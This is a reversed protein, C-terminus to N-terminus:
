RRILFIESSQQDIAAGNPNSIGSYAVHEGSADVVISSVPRNAALRDLQLTDTDLLFAEPIPLTSDPVLILTLVSGDTSLSLPAETRLEYGSLQCDDTSDMPCARIASDMDIREGSILNLLVPVGATNVYAVRSGSGDSTLTNALVTDDLELEITEGSGDSYVFLSSDADVETLVEDTPRTFVIREGDNSIKLNYASTTQCTACVLQQTFQQDIATTEGSAADVILVMTLVEVLALESRINPIFQLRIAVRSGDASIDFDLAQSFNYVSTLTGPIVITDLTLSTVTGTPRHVVVPGSESNFGVGPITSGNASLEAPSAIFVATDGNTSIGTETFCVNALTLQNVLTGASGSDVRRTFAQCNESLALTSFDDNLVGSSDVSTQYLADISLTNVDVAFHDVNTDSGTAPTFQQVGLITGDQNSSFGFVRSVFPDQVGLTSQINVTETNSAGLGVEAFITTFNEPLPPTLSIDDEILSEDLTGIFNSGGGASDSDEDAQEADSDVLQDDGELSESAGESLDNDSELSEQDLDLLGDESVEDDGAVSELDSTEDELVDAGEPLQAPLVLVETEDEDASGSSCASLFLGGILVLILRSARIANVYIKLNQIGSM